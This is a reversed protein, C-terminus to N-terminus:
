IVPFVMSERFIKEYNETVALELYEMDKALRIIDEKSNQGTLFMYAGSLSTNGVYSIKNETGFPIIGSMVLSSVPLHAGFQGAIIIKNLDEINLKFHNLLAVFGSLIAGKALQVQRVDTQTVIINEKESLVLERKNGNLRIYKQRYDNEKLSEKKLFAGNKNILNHKVVERIVSLIGSGCIGVPAENNITILDISNENIVVDEIAGNCARVGNTINMGELAPGAACSCCVLRDNRKLVIEGNTGIDIFLVNGESNLMGSAYVGSVIDSGIFASVGPLTYLTANPLDLGLDVAKVQKSEIFVPKYPYKGLSSADEKLLFHLMTTNASIAIEVIENRNIKSNSILEEILKNLGDILSKNLKELGELGEEINYSIRTLVDLGFQKQPNIMSSKSIVISNTLNILQMVVTTTGIDVAIALGNRFKKNFDKLFGETM